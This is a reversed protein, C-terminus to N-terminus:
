IGCMWSLGVPDITFAAEPWAGELAKQGARVEMVIAWPHPSVRQHHGPCIKTQAKSKSYVDDPNAPHVASPVGEEEM